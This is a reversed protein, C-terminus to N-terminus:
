IFIDHLVDDIQNDALGYGNFDRVLREVLDKDKSVNRVKKVTEGNVKCSFGYYLEDEHLESILEYVPYENDAM